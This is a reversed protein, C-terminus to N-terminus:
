KSNEKEAERKIKLYQEWKRRLRLDSLRVDSDTDELFTKFEEADKKRREAEEKIKKIGEELGEGKEEKVEVSFKESKHATTLMLKVIKYHENSVEDAIWEDGKFGNNYVGQLTQTIKPRRIPLDKTNIEVVVGCQPLSIFNIVSGRDNYKPSELILGKVVSHTYATEVMSRNTSMYVGLENGDSIKTPDEKNVKGPVLPKSAIDVSLDNPDVTFARYLVEPREVEQSREADSNSPEGEIRM